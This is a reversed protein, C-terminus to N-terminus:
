GVDKIRITDGANIIGGRIVRAFVGEKPMICTGVQHFIACKTHCKKGIQTLELIIDDGVELRSGIPLSALDINRTTLNEAFDGPGVELGHNRMKHISEVALLSVQRHTHCDAHADGVLGFNERAVATSVTKKNTGKQESTCVAIIQAM